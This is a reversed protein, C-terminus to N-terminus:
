GTVERLRLETVIQRRARRMQEGADTIELLAQELREEELSSQALELSRVARSLVSAYIRM